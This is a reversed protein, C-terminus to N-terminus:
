NPSDPFPPSFRRFVNGNTSVHSPWIPGGNNMGSPANSAIRAHVAKRAQGAHGTAQASGHATSGSTPLADVARNRALVRPALTLLLQGMCSSHAAALRLFM